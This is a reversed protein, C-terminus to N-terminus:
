SGVREIGQLGLFNHADTCQEFLLRLQPLCQGLKTFCKPQQRKRKFFGAWRGIKALQQRHTGM